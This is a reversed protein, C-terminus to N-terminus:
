QRVTVSVPNSACYFAGTADFLVYAHHLTFTVKVLNAPVIFQATGRGSADLVSRFGRFPPNLMVNQMAVETYIDFNLPIQIGNLAIGPSRGTISGFIWYPRNAHVPGADLTLTQTGGSVFSVSTVDATMFCNAGWYEWTEGGGSRGGFMVVRGRASDYVMKHQDRAAPSRSSSIRTWSGGDYEWTEDLARTDFGGFMVVCRRVSDYAMGGAIRRVSPMGSPWVAHWMSGDWEWTDSLRPLGVGGFLVTRKRYSDYVLEHNSRASPSASAPPTVDTWVSGDFEWTDNVIGAKIDKGGFLVIRGRSQDFAMAFSTRASPKQAAPILIKTWVSGNWTWTDRLGSGGYLVTLKSLPDYIMGHGTRPPPAVAPKLETWTQGDYEWTDGHARALTDLGGFLVTVQRDSDYAMAHHSRAFPSTGPQVQTWDPAQAHCEAVVVAAFLLHLHKTKM